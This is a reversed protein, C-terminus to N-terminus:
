VAFPGIANAIDNAGHAFSGVIAMLVQGISFLQETRQDYEESDPKSEEVPELEEVFPNETGTFDELEIEEFSKSPTQEIQDEQTEESPTSEDSSFFRVKIAAPFTIQFPLVFQHKAGAKKHAWHIICPM